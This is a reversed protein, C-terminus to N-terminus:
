FDYGVISDAYDSWGDAAKYADVSERPVYIKYGSGSNSFFSSGQPPTIAKCYVEELNSCDSFTWGSLKIMGAGIVVRKLNKCEAFVEYNYFETVSDPIIVSQLAKYGEFSVYMIKVGNPIVLDTILENNLYLNIGQGYPISTCKVNCWAALDSIHISSLKNCEAFADSRISTVGRGITISELKYCCNFAQEGIISVSDPITIQTVQTCESFAENGITKVNNGITIDTLGFCMAFAKTGIETVSDPIIISQLSKCSHFTNEGITKVSNPIAINNLRQCYYFASKGISTISNPIIISTLNSCSSFANNGISIVSDPIIVSTLNSCSDFVYEGIEVVCDPITYKTLGASAFSHLVGDIVLCRNDASAFKGHFSTLSTCNVFVSSGLETVSNPITVNTLAGCSTFVSSGIKNVNNGIAVSSLSSCLVFAGDGIETVSDPVIVSKLSSCYNFAYGGISTVSDPITISTLSTRYHFAREGIMTVDGDFTIIGEGTTSDWENSVINAGFVDTKYPTVKATATYWIENNAPGAPVVEVRLVAMPQILNNEIPVANTTKKEFTQDNIDTLEITIGGEFTIEPIVVWFITPNAADNSLAVGEGCDITITDTADNGMTITPESGYAMSVTAKGAIKESNNGKVTISKITVDDGYFKLKLYGCLNKFSLFNDATSKTVAMMTNAGAGFSNAYTHNYVQTAPLTLSVVGAESITINEDYPYIAYNATLDLPTGTVFGNEDVENFKGSNAGNEGAFQWHSNYSNGAFISIEDGANWRLYRNDEVYTRTDCEPMSAYFETQSKLPINTINDLEKDNQTCGILAVVAALIAFRKMIM